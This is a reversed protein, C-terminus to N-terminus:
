KLLEELLGKEKKKSPKKEDPTKKEFFKELGKKLSPGLQKVLAEEDLGVKPDEATGKIKLPITKWGQEDELLKISAFKKGLGRTLKPSIKLETPIDLRKEFDMWGKPSIKFLSSQLLGDVFVKEERMDFHFLGQDFGPNKLEEIGTLISIAEFIKSEKIAGRGLQAVAKGRLTKQIASPEEGAFQLNGNLSGDAMFSDRVSFKLDFPEVRMVGKGYQFNVRFEKFGYGLYNARDVAIQGSAKLKKFVEGKAKEIRGEEKEKKPVGERKLEREAVKKGSTLTALKKLDLTKAHLNMIVNPATLYDNITASLDISDGGIRTQLNARLAKSDMEIKGLGNVVMDKLNVKMEKLFIRVLEMRPTGDKGVGGKLEADLLMAMDPLRKEEDLFTFRGDRIFLRDTAISLPLGKSKPPSPKPTEKPKREMLDSFNYRGGVYRQITISPSAVLIKSLVLQKKLLPLLRYSLVLERINLFDRKADKEKITLGKAVIGKFLSVKIQDVNVKRGTLTEAKPLIMAKLRDSSLYAKIFMNFGIALIVLIGIVILSIKTVRRMRTKRRQFLVM